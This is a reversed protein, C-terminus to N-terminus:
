VVDIGAAASGVARFADALTGRAGREDRPPEPCPAVHLLHIEDDSRAFAAAYAIAQGALPSGDLPVLLRMPSDPDTSMPTSRQEVDRSVRGALRRPPDSRPCIMPTPM